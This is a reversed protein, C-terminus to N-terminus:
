PLVEIVTSATDSLGGPDTVTLSASVVDGPHLGTLAIRDYVSAGTISGTAFEWAYTLPDGNPDFSGRGDVVVLCELTGFGTAACSQQASIVAVPALNLEPLADADPCPGEVDDHALHAPLAKEGIVIEHPEGGDGPFHCVQVKAAKDNGAAVGAIPIALLGMVVLGIVM